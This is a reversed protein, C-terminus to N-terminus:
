KSDHTLISFYFDNSNDIYINCKFLIFTVKVSLVSHHQNQEKKKRTNNGVQEWDPGSIKFFRIRSNVFFKTSGGNIQCICKVKYM